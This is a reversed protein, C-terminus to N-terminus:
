EVGLRSGRSACRPTARLNALRGLCLLVAARICRACLVCAFVSRCALRSRALAPCPSRAVVLVDLHVLLLLQSGHLGTGAYAREERRAQLIGM